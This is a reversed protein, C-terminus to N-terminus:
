ENTPHKVKRTYKLNLSDNKQYHLLYTLDELLLHMCAKVM